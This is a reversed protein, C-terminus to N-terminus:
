ILKPFRSHANLRTQAVAANPDQQQANPTSCLLFTLYRRPGCPNNGADGSEKPSEAVAQKRGWLCLVHGSKRLAEPAATAAPIQARRVGAHQRTWTALSGQADTKFLLRELDEWIQCLSRRKAEEREMRHHVRGYDRKHRTSSQPMRGRSCLPQQSGGAAQRGAPSGPQASGAPRGSRGQGEGGAGQIRPHIQGACPSAPQPASCELKWRESRGESQKM